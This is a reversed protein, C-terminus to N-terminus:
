DHWAKNDMHNPDISYIMGGRVLPPCDNKNQLTVADSKMWLRVTASENIFLESNKMKTRSPGCCSGLSWAAAFFFSLFFTHKNAHSLPLSAFPFSFYCHIRTSVFTGKCLFSRPVDAVTTLM